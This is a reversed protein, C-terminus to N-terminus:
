FMRQTRSVCVVYVFVCVGDEYFVHLLVGGMQLYFVHLANKKRTCKWLQTIHEPQIHFSCRIMEPTAEYLVIFIQSRVVISPLYLSIHILNTQLLRENWYKSLEVLVARRFSIASNYLFIHHQVFNSTSWPSHKSCMIAPVTYLNIARRKFNWFSFRFKIIWKKKIRHFGTPKTVAENMAGMQNDKADRRCRM